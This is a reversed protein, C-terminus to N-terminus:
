WLDSMCKPMPVRRWFKQPKANDVGFGNSKPMTLAFIRFRWRWFFFMRIKANSSVGFDATCRWLQGYLALILRVVGFGGWRWFKANALRQSLVSIHITCDLIELIPSIYPDYSGSNGPYSQNIRFRTGYSVLKLVSDILIWNFIKIKLLIKM